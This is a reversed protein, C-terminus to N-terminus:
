LFVDQHNNLVDSVFLKFPPRQPTCQVLKNACAWSCQSQSLCFHCGSLWHLVVSNVSHLHILLCFSSLPILPLSHFTPLLGCPCSCVCMCICKCVCVCWVGWVFCVCAGCVHVRVCAHVCVCVVCVCVCVSVHMYVQLSACACVVCVCVYVCVCVRVCVCVCLALHLPM